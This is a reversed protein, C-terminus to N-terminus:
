SLSVQTITIKEVWYNQDSDGSMEYDSIVAAVVYPSAFSSDPEYTLELWSLRIDAGVGQLPATTKDVLVEFTVEQLDLALNAIPGCGTNIKQNETPSKFTINRILCKVNQSSGYVIPTVGLKTGIKLSYVGERFQAQM